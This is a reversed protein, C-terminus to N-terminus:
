RGLGRFRLAGVNVMPGFINCPGCTCEYDCVKLIPIVKGENIANCRLICPSTENIGCTGDEWFAVQVKHYAAVDEASLEELKSRRSITGFKAELNELRVALDKLEDGDAMSSVEQKDLADIIKRGNEPATL